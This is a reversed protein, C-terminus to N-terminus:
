NGLIVQAKEIEKSGISADAPLDSSIIRGAEDVIDRGTNGDAPLKGNILRPDIEIVGNPGYIEIYKDGLEEPSYLGMASLPQANGNEDIFYLEEYPTDPMGDGDTDVWGLELLREIEKQRKIEELVEDQAKIFKDSNEKTGRYVLSIHMECEAELQALLESQEPTALVTVTSPLEKQEDDSKQTATDDTNADYGSNATVAILEVYKLEIPIITEGTGLYNSVIISVIDGSKLKGSVGEAFSNITVSIAQKTGDLNYLYANELAPENSLKSTLIYDGQYVEANLYKGVVESESKAVNAPLNYKGVQVIEIMDKTIEEGAIANSKMRVIPTKSSLGKNVFPTVVFCIVLAIAICLIGLLTKNRFPKM